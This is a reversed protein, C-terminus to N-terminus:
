IRERAEGEKGRPLDKAGSRVVTTEKRSGHERGEKESEAAKAGEAECQAVLAGRSADKLFRDYRWGGDEDDGDVRKWGRSSSGAAAVTGRCLWANEEEDKEVAARGTEKKGGPLGENRPRSAVVKWIVERKKKRRKGERERGTQRETTDTFVSAKEM